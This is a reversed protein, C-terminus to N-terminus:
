PYVSNHLVCKYFLTLSYSFPKWLGSTVQHIISDFICQKEDSDKHNPTSQNKLRLNPVFLRLNNQIVRYTLDVALFGSFM